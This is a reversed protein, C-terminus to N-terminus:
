DSFCFGLDNLKGDRYVRLIKSAAHLGLSGEKKAWYMVQRLMAKKNEGKYDTGLIVTYGSEPFVLVKKEPWEPITIATFDPEGGDSPFLTNGWMLPLRPYNATVYLRCNKRFGPNMCMVRDLKIVEKDKLYDMVENVLENTGPDSM